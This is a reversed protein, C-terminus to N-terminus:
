SSSRNKDEWFPLARELTVKLNEADPIVTDDLNAYRRDTHASYEDDKAMAPPLVDYSRRWIHVQEDGWKEAAEAKNSWNFWRLSTRELAM